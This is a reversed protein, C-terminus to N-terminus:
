TDCVDGLIDNLGCAQKTCGPTDAKPYFYVLVKHGRLGSLKVANESQDLLEFDPAPDGPKLMRRGYRGTMAAHGAHVYPSTSRARRSRRPPRRTVDGAHQAIEVRAGPAHDGRREGTAHGSETHKQPHVPVADGAHERLLMPILRLRGLGLQEAFTVVSSTRRESSPTVMRGSPPDNRSGSERTYTPSSATQRPSVASASASKSASASLAKKAAARSRPSM